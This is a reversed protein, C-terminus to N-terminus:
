VGHAEGESEAPKRQSGDLAWLATAPIAAGAAVVWLSLLEESVACPGHAHVRWIGGSEFAYWTSGSRGWYIPVLFSLLILAGAALFCGTVAYKALRLVTM